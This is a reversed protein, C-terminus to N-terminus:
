KTVYIPELYGLPICDELKEQFEFPSLSSIVIVKFGDRVIAEGQELDHERYLVKYRPDYDPLLLKAGGHMFTESPFVDKKCLKKKWDAHEISCHGLYFSFTSGTKLAGVLKQRCKEVVDNRKIGSKAFPIVLASVDELMSKYSYYSRVFQETSTDLILPTKNLVNIIRDVETPLESLTFCPLGNSVDVSKEKHQGIVESVLGEDEYAEPRISVIEKTLIHIYMYCCGAGLYKMWKGASRLVILEFPFRYMPKKLYPKDDDEEMEIIEGGRLINAAEKENKSDAETGGFSRQDFNNLDHQHKLKLDYNLKEKQTISNITANHIDIKELLTLSNYKFYIVYPNKCEILPMECEVKSELFNLQVYNLIMADDLSLINESNANILTEYAHSSISYSFVDNSSTSVGGGM